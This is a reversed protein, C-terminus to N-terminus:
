NSTNHTGSTPKRCEVAVSAEYRSPDEVDRLMPDESDNFEARRIDAFGVRELEYKLSKFDWMSLHGASGLWTRMLGIIGKPKTEVGLSTYRMFEEAATPEPSSLYHRTQAELDPVVLRFIGGECLLEYSNHLAIRFEDLALHELIHCAYVVACSGPALPLGKVIDGFEVNAPFRQPNKTYLSGILPLREYRLTLSSDFNRWGDFACHGCGYQAYIKRHNGNRNNM